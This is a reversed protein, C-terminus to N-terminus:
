IVFTLDGDCGDSRVVLRVLIVDNLFGEVISENSTLEKLRGVIAQSEVATQSKFILLCTQFEHGGEILLILHHEEELLLVLRLVVTGEAHLVDNFQLWIWADLQLIKVVEVVM